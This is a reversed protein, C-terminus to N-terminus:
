GRGLPRPKASAPRRVTRLGVKAKRSRLAGELLEGEVPLVSRSARHLLVNAANIDAHDRHGCKTCCFVEGRRSKADVHDCVACTQSSYPAPVLRVVGGTWGQKYRCMREFGALGADSLGRACNGRIMGALNLDELM